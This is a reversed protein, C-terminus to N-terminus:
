RCPGTPLAPHIVASDVCSVPARGAEKIGSPAVEHVTGNSSRREPARRHWIKELPLKTYRTGRRITAAAPGRYDGPQGTAPLLEAWGGRRGATGPLCGRAKSRLAHVTTQYSTLDSRVCTSSPYPYRCNSLLGPSPLWLSVTVVSWLKTRMM